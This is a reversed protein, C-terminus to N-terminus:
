ARTVPIADERPVPAIVRTPPNLWNMSMSIVGNVSPMKTARITTVKTIEAALPNHLGLEVLVCMEVKAFAAEFRRTAAKTMKKLIQPTNTVSWSSGDIGCLRWGKYFCTPDRKTEAMPRLAHKMLWEFPELGMRQRRESLSSDKISVGFLQFVHASFVGSGSMVHYVLSALLRSACLKPKPGRGPEQLSEFGNLISSFLNEFKGIFDPHHDSREHCMGEM